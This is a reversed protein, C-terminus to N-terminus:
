RSPYRSETASSLSTKTWIRRKLDFRVAKELETPDIPKMLFYIPQVTYGKLLFSDDVTMLVVSIDEGREKLIRALDIGNKSGLRIDLFLLDLKGGQAVFRLIEQECYYEKLVCPVKLKEMINICIRSMQRVFERDDDCIGVTYKYSPM